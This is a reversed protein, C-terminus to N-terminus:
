MFFRDTCSRSCSAASSLASIIYLTDFVPPCRLALKPTTSSATVRCWTNLVGSSLIM